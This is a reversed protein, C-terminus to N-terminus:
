SERRTRADSMVGNQVDVVLLVAKNGDRITAM